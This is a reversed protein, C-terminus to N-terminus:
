KKLIYNVNHYRDLTGIDIAYEETVYGFMKKNKKLLLPLVDKALDVETNEPISSIMNKKFIYLAISSLNGYKMWNEGPKEKFSLIRQNKNIKIITSDYPHTSKHLALTIDAKKRNHFVLMQSLDINTYIDGYLVFFEDELYNKILKLAGGTGLPQNEASLKINIKHDNKNIYEEIKNNLHGTCIIVDKCGIKKLNDLHYEILPKNIIPLLLKPTIRGLKGLRTGRGGAIIVAQM